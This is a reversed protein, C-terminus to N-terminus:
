FSKVALAKHQEYFKKLKNYTTNGYKEYNEKREKLIAERNRYYWERKQRKHREHKQEPTLEISENLTNM